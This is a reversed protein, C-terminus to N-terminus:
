ALDDLLAKAARLDRTAFGETFWAYLPALLARAADRKGQRQRLRALGTAARLELLKAEQRRAIELSQGFRAEPEEVTDGDVDLLIEARVRHIEADWYHQGQQEALSTGLDLAGLAEDRRGVKRLNEALKCLIWPAGVGSGIGALEVMAQQMEAIGAEVEGSEARACGRGIKGVGVYLPFGLKEGLDVVAGYRERMPDLEGRELHISGAYFFAQAMSIPHEVRKALAVAEKSFALARDPHGLYLHCHAAFLRSTVGSDIGVTYALSGHERPDYLEISQEAHHLARSYHGQFFLPGQAVGHALLLDLADGTRGAAALAEHAVEAATALDGKVSYAYSMGALVRPLEPSEGIQSVLERARAYTQECEPHSWGRVAALPVAIVM